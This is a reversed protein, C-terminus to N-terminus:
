MISPRQTNDRYVNEPLINTPREFFSVPDLRKLQPFVEAKSTVLNTSGIGFLVSEIDTPNHSFNDAPMRGAMYSVPLAPNFAHGNPANNYSINNSINELSRQELKYNEKSNIDRTSAM